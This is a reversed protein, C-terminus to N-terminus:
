QRNEICIHSSQWRRYPLIAIIGVNANYL